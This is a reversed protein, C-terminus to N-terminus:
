NIGGGIIPSVKVKGSLSDTYTKIFELSPDALATSAKPFRVKDAAGYSFRIGSVSGEPLMILEIVNEAIYAQETEGVLEGAYYRGGFNFIKVKRDM